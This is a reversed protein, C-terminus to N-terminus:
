GPYLALTRTVEIGNVRTSLGLRIICGCHIWATTCWPMVPDDNTRRAEVRAFLEGTLILGNTPQARRYVHALIRSRDENYLIYLSRTPCVKFLQVAAEDEHVGYGPLIVGGNVLYFNVYSAALRNGADAYVFYYSGCAAPTCPGNISVLLGHAM